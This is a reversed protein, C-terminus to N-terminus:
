EPNISPAELALAKEFDATTRVYLVRCKDWSFRIEKDQTLSLLFWRTESVNRLTLRLQSFFYLFSSTWKKTVSIWVSITKGGYCRAWVCTCAKKYRIFFRHKSHYFFTGSFTQQISIYQTFTPENDEPGEKWSRGDVNREREPVRSTLPRLWALKM